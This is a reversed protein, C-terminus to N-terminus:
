ESLDKYNEFDVFGHRIYDLGGDVFINECSCQKFDHQHFSEIVDGCKLCKAKNKHINGTKKVINDESFNEDDPVNEEILEAEFWEMESWAIAICYDDINILTLTSENNKVKKANALQQHFFDLDKGFPYIFTRETGSKFGVKIKIYKM